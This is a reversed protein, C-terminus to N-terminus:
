DRYKRSLGRFASGEPREAGAEPDGQLLNEPRAQPDLLGDRLFAVLDQFEQRTLRLAAIGPDLRALV